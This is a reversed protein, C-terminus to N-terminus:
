FRFITMGYTSTALRDRACADTAHALDGLVVYTVLAILYAVVSDTCGARVVVAATSKVTREVHARVLEAATVDITVTDM